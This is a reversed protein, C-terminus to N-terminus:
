ASSPMRSTSLDRPSPSTYLLCSGSNMLMLFIRVPLVTEYSKHAWLRHSGATVGLGYFSGLVFFIGIVQIHPLRVKLAIDYNVITYILGLLGLFHVYALWTSNVPRLNHKKYFNKLISLM